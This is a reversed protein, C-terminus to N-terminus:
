WCAMQKKLAKMAQKSSDQDLSHLAVLGQVQLLMFDALESCNANESIEQKNKAQQIVLELTDRLRLFHSRISQLIEPDRVGGELLTNQLLCGPISSPHNLGQALQNLYNDLSRLGQDNGQLPKLLGSFVKDQYYDLCLVFLTKKDGLTNYISYRNIGLEDVLDQMSTSAYGKRWFLMTAKHITKEPDFTLPRAMVNLGSAPNLLKLLLEDDMM